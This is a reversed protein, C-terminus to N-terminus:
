RASGHRHATRRVGARGTSAKASSQEAPGTQFSPLRSQWAGGSPSELIVVQNGPLESWSFM